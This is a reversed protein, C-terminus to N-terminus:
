SEIYGMENGHAINGLLPYSPRRASELSTNGDRSDARLSRILGIFCHFTASIIFFIFDAMFCLIYLVCGPIQLVSYVSLSNM